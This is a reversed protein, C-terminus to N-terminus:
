HRLCEKRHLRAYNFCSTKKPELLLSGFENTMCWKLKNYNLSLICGVLEAWGNHKWWWASCWELWATMRVVVRLKCGGGAMVMTVRSMRDDDNGGIVGGSGPL